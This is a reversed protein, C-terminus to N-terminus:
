PEREGEVGRSLSSLLPQLYTPPVEPAARARARHPCRQTSRRACQLDRPPEHSHLEASWVEGGEPLHDEVHSGGSDRWGQSARHRLHHNGRLTVPPDHSLSHHLAHLVVGRGLRVVSLSLPHHSPSLSVPSLASSSSSVPLRGLGHPTQCLSDFDEIGTQSGYYDCGYMNKLAIDGWNDLSCVQALSTMARFLSGFYFEDNKKFILVGAVAFHFFMLFMMGVVYLLPRISSEISLMIVHLDTIWSLLPLLRLLYVIRASEAIQTGWGSYFVPIWIILVMTLDFLNGHSFFFTKYSPYYTLIRVIIDLSLLVQVSVFVQFFLPTRCIDKNTCYIQFSATM